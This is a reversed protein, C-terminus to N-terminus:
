GLRGELVSGMECFVLDVVGDEVLDSGQGSVYRPRVEDVLLVEGVQVPDQIPSLLQDGGDAGAPQVTSVDIRGGEDVRKMFGVLSSKPADAIQTCSPFGVAPREELVLPELSRGGGHRLCQRTREPGGPVVLVAVAEVEVERLFM